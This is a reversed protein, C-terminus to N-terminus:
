NSDDRSYGSSAILEQNALSRGVLPMAAEPLKRAALAFGSFGVFVCDTTLKALFKPDVHECHTLLLEGDIIWARRKPNCEERYNDCSLRDAM